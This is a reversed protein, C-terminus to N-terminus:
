PTASSRTTARRAPLALENDAENGKIIAYNGKPMAKFIERGAHPRGRRQRLDPVPGQSGRHAPRVRHGPHRRRHGQDVSPLIATDDQALIIVVNAGSSILSEVNTAQTEASSKADNSIYKGGGAEIAAKLAPEDWKAWREEQYNNWSMGVTCNGAAAGGSAPAATAGGSNSSCAGVFVATAGALAALRRINM